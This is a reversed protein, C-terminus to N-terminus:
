DPSRKELWSRIEGSFSAFLMVVVPMGFLYYMFVKSLLANSTKLAILIGIPGLIPVLMMLVTLIIVTLTLRRSVYASKTEFIHRIPLCLFLMAYGSWKITVAKPAGFAWFAYVGALAFCVLYWNTARREQSSLAYRGEKHFRLILDFMPNALFFLVFVSYCVEKLIALGVVAGPSDALVRPGLLFIGFVVLVASWVVNPKLRGLRILLALLTSYIPSQAKLTTVFGERAAENGPQLRLSELFHVRAEDAKGKLLLDEGRLCHNWSDLPDEQLLIDTMAGSEEHRGLSSLIRARYTLSLDNFADLELGADAAALAQTLKKREYLVRALLGHYDADDPDLRISERIAAEADALQERELLVLARTWHVHPDEPGHELAGDVVRRAENWRGLRLFAVALGCHVYPNQPEESLAQQWEPVAMDYRGQDM